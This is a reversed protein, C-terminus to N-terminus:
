AAALQDFFRLLQAEADDFSRAAFLVEQFTSIEYDSFTGM